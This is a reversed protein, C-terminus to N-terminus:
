TSRLTRVTPSSWFRVGTDTAAGNLATTHLLLDELGDCPTAADLAALERDLEADLEAEEEMKSEVWGRNLWYGGRAGAAAEDGGLDSAQSGATGCNLKWVYRCSAPGDM